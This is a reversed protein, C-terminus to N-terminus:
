VRSSPAAHSIPRPVYVALPVRSERVKSSLEVPESRLREPLASINTVAAAASTVLSVAFVAEVKTARSAEPLKEAPV